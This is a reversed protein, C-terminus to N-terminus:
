GLRMVESALQHYALAAASRPAFSVLSQRADAAREFLAARPISTAFMASDFGLRLQAEYEGQLAVRADKMTLLIKLRLAANGRERVGAVSHQLQALGVLDLVRPPTPAIALHATKLAAATESGIAPPCDLLFYDHHAAERELIGPLTRKTAALVRAEPEAESGFLLSGQADLDLLLVRRGHARLAAGLNLATTTKGVGGKQNILAIIM